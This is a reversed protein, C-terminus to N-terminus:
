VLRKLARQMSVTFAEIDVQWHTILGNDPKVQHKENAIKAEHEEIRLRLGAVRRKLARNGM